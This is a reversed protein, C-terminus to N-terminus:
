LYVVHGGQGPGAVGATRFLTLRCKQCSFVHQVAEEAPPDAAEEADTVVAESTVAADVPDTEMVGPVFCLAMSVNCVSGEGKHIM